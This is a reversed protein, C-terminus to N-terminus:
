ASNWCSILDAFKVVWSGWCGYSSHFLFEILRKQWKPASWVWRYIKPPFAFLLKERNADFLRAITEATRFNIRLNVQKKMKEVVAKIDDVNSLTQRSSHFTAEVDRTPSSFTSGLSKLVITASIINTVRIRCDSHGLQYLTTVLSRPQHLDLSAPEFGLRLM